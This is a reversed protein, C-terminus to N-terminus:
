ETLKDTQCLLGCFYHNGHIIESKDRLLLGESRGLEYKESIIVQLEAIQRFELMRRCSLEASRALRREMSM